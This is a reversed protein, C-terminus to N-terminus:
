FLEIDGEDMSEQEVPNHGLTDYIQQHRELVKRIESQRTTQDASSISVSLTDTMFNEMMNLKKELSQSLQTVMDEFQLSMVAIGVSHSIQESLQSVRELTQTTQKDLNAIEKMMGDVRNKSEIAFSMDKSAMTEIIQKAKNINRHSESVVSDIQGSFQSSDRSLTRVQDAVVAFARGAEGARAAVIRANLALVNTQESIGNIDGLIKGIKHMQDALDDVRHVMEMSQRSVLLIHDVFAHLITDTEGVFEIINVHHPEDKSQKSAEDKSGAHVFDHLLQTQIETQTRLDNFSSGLKVIADQVLDRVRYVETRMADMEHKLIQKVERYLQQEVM